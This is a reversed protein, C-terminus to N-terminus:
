AAARLGPLGRYVALMGEAMASATYHGAREIACGALEATEAADDVLGQLVAAAADAQPAPVFRAAGDWLERLSPIDSLVLACGSQAAELVTLGFPEYFPLSAFIPVRDMHMRLVPSSLQGLAFTNTLAIRGGHPGRLAGAALLPADLLSSALDLTAVNKADDWLRGATLVCRKRGASGPVHPAAGNHVVTPQRGYRRATAAAFAASPAVLVDCRSYGRALLVTRWRFDPPM